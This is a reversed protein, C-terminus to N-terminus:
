VFCLGRQGPHLRCFRPCVNCQLRGDSLREWHRGPVTSPANLVSDSIRESM